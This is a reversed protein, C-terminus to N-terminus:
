SQNYMGVLGEIYEKEAELIEVIVTNGAVALMFKEPDLKVEEPIAKVSEYFAIKENWRALLDKLISLSELTQAKEKKRGLVQDKPERPFFFTGDNPMLDEDM